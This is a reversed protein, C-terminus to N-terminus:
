GRDASVREVDDLLRVRPISILYEAGVFNLNKNINLVALQSWLWSTDLEIMATSSDAWSCKNLWDRVEQSTRAHDVDPLELKKRKRRDIGSSERYSNKSVKRYRMRSRNRILLQGAKRYWAKRSGRRIPNKFSYPGVVIAQRGIRTYDPSQLRLSNKWYSHQDFELLNELGSIGLARVCAAGTVRAELHVCPDGTVKSEKDFYIAIVKRGFERSRSYMGREYWGIKQRRHWPFIMHWRFYDGLVDAQVQNATMLDFSTDVRNILCEGECVAALLQIAEHSPQRLEIWSRFRPHYKMRKWKVTARKGCLQNLAQVVSADLVDETWLSITDLYFAAGSIKKFAEM